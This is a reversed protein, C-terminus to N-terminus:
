HEQTSSTSEASPPGPIRTDSVNRERPRHKRHHSGCCRASPGPTVEVADLSNGRPPRAIAYRVTDADGPRSSQDFVATDFFTSNSPLYLGDRKKVNSTM